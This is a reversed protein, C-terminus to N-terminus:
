GATAARVAAIAALRAPLDAMITKREAASMRAWREIEGIRRGCGLCQGLRVDLTCVKICPTEIAAM